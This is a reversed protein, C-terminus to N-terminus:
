VSLALAEVYQVRHITKKVTGGKPYNWQGIRTIRNQKVGYPMVIAGTPLVFDDGLEAFLGTFDVTSAVTGSSGSIAIRYVVKSTPNIMALYQGDWQIADGTVSLSIEELSQSGYPMEALANGANVYLNGSGDYACWSYGFLGSVTYDTPKGKAGTYVAVNGDGGNMAQTNAVALNGTVPDVACGLPYYGYDGLKAIPETGGHAYEFIDETYLTTIFVDGNADSCVGQSGDFGTLTGVLKGQPYSLAYVNGGGDSYYLLTESSAEPLMWSRAHGGALVAPVM